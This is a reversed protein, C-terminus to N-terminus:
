SRINKSEDTWDRAIIGILVLHKIYTEGKENNTGNM